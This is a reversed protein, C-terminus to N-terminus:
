TAGLACVLDQKIQLNLTAEPIFTVPVESVDALIKRSLQVAMSPGVLKAAVASRLLHLANSPTAHMGFPAIPGM